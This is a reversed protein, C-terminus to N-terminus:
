GGPMFNSQPLVPQSATQAKVPTAKGNVQEILAIIHKNLKDLEAQDMPTKPYITIPANITRGGQNDTSPPNNGGSEGEKKGKLAENKKKEEEEIKKFAADVSVVLAKISEEVKAFDGGSGNKLVKQLEMLAKSNAEVANNDIIVGKSAATESVRKAEELARNMAIETNSVSKGEQFGYKEKLAAKAVEVQKQAAPIMRKGDLSLDYSGIAFKRKYDDRDQKLNSAAQMREYPNKSNLMFQSRQIRSLLFTRQQEVMGVAAENIAKNGEPTGELGIGLQKSLNLRQIQLRGRSRVDGFQPNAVMRELSDLRDVKGYFQEPNEYDDLGGALNKDRENRQNLTFSVDKSSKSLFKDITKSLGFAKDASALKALEGKADVAAGKLELMNSTLGAFAEQTLIGQDKLLNLEKMFTEMYKGSGQSEVLRTRGESGMLAFLNTVDGKRKQRVDKFVDKGDEFDLKGNQERRNFYTKVPSIESFNGSFLNKADGPLNKVLSIPNVMDFLDGVSGGVLDLFGKEPKFSKFAANFNDNTAGAFRSSIQTADITRRGTTKIKDAEETAKNVDLGIARFKEQYVQPLSAVGKSVEELAKSKQASTADSSNLIQKAKDLTTLYNDLPEETDKTFIDKQKNALELLKGSLQESDLAKGGFDGFGTARGAYKSIKKQGSESNAYTAAGGILGGTLGAAILAPGSLLAGGVGLASLGLRGVVGAAGRSAAIKGAGGLISSAARGKLGGSGAIKELGSTVFQKPQFSLAKRALGDKKFLDAGGFTSFTSYATSGISLANAATQYNSNGTEEAKNSLYNGLQSVAFQVAFMKGLNSADGGVKNLSRLNGQTTNLKSKSSLLRQQERAIRARDLREADDVSNIVTLNKRPPFYSNNQPVRQNTIIKGSTKDYYQSQGLKNRNKLYSQETLGLGTNSADRRLTLRKEREKIIEERRKANKELIRRRREEQEETNFNPIFGKHAGQKQLSSLSKGMSMHMDIAKSLSGESTNYVGIGGSEKLRPDYGVKVESSSYGASMERKIAENIANFNPIFGGSRKSNLGIQQGKYRYLQGTISQNALKAIARVNDESDDILNYRGGFKQEVRSLFLAKKEASSLARLGDVQGTRNPFRVIQGTSNVKLDNFLSATTVVKNTDIGWSKLQNEIPARSDSGRATLVTIKEGVLSKALDTPNADKISNGWYLKREEYGAPYRGLTEDFDYINGQNIPSPKSIRTLASNSSFYKAALQPYSNIWKSIINGSKITDKQLKVELDEYYKTGGYTSDISLKERSDADVISEVSPFDIFENEPRRSASIIRELAYGANRAGGSKKALKQPNVDLPDYIIDNLRIIRNDLASIQEPTNAGVMRAVKEKAMPGLSSFSAFTSTRIPSGGGTAAYGIGLQAKNNIVALASAERVIKNDERKKYLAEREAVSVNPPQFSPFERKIEDLSVGAKLAANAKPKDLTIFGKKQKYAALSLGAFNPVFGRYALQAESPPTTYLTLVESNLDILSAKPTQNAGDLHYGDRKGFQKLSKAVIAKHILGSGTFSGLKAEGNTFDLSASRNGINNRQLNLTKALWREYLEGAMTNKVGIYQRKKKVLKDNGATISPVDQQKAFKGNPDQQEFFTDIASADNGLIGSIRQSYVSRQAGSASIGKQILKDARNYFAERNGKYVVNWQLNKVRDLGLDSIFKFPKGRLIFGDKDALELKNGIQNLGKGTLGGAGSKALNPVFGSAMYPDVGVKNMSNRRHEQGAKSNKPPNIFPQAFGPVYKVSEATNMVGGVPSKVVNGPRYGGAMAGSIEAAALENPIHGGASTKGKKGGGSAGPVVILGKQVGGGAALITQASAKALNQQASLLSNQATIIELVRKHAQEVTLTGNAIGQYISPNQQLIQLIREQIAAQQKLGSNLGLITQGADYVFKTLNQFIKFLAVGALVLGPGSLFTGVGELFMKAAKEGASKPENTLSVEGFISNVGGLVRKIAPALTLEGIAAGAKKLNNFTTNLQSSITQNLQALRQEAENSATSSIDLARSYVSYEKSLDGLAAKLINIQYVGGVLEGIQSKQAESLTDFRRALETLIEMMPRAKGSFDTVRVGIESLEDLVKPRALRTFITKFSNGIVSGGRATTQQASTVLAILQDIGVGADQASSGVRKFAEALDGSGVAFAADVAAFKNVLQTSTIVEKSFSNLTATIAEVSSAADLGSLKTLTLADKTRKLTESLGLGQRSFELAAQSVDKFATSTQNGIAFLGDGFKSLDRKNAGLVTNIDTLAKEVEIVSKVVEQIGRNFAFIAGASAGFAVVRANSAELSKEFEGLEGRIKGLPATFSKTNLGSLKYNQSLAKKLQEELLRTDGTILISADAPM